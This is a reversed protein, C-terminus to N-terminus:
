LGVLRTLLYDLTARAQRQAARPKDARAIMLGLEILAALLIHAVGDVLEPDLRGADAERILAQRLLGLGRRDDTASWSEWGLVAPADILTIQRTTPDSALELWAACGARLPDAPAKAAASALKEATEDEILEYVALFLERKNAFHHYLAGRSLAAREQIAEISTQAYGASAFMERAIAIVRARTSAAQDRRSPM